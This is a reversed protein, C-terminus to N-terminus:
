CDLSLFQDLEKLREPTGIDSWQGSYYSGSVKGGEIANRLLPGLALSGAACGDFLTPSLVSIGSFTYALEESDARKNRLLFVEKRNDVPRSRDLIFDGEPHQPPNDVLLLHALHEDDFYQGYSMFGEFPLDCWVDGNIVLFPSEGLLPLAKIIGGATELPQDEHSYYLSLGFDKGDGLTAEIQEGLHATNIVVQKFGARHLRELHHAILSKGGVQLLPKPTHQTLPLMRKGLGAALIMAKM